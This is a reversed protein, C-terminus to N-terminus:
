FSFFSISLHISKHSIDTFTIKVGNGITRLRGVDNEEFRVSVCWFFCFEHVCIFILLFSLYYFRCWIDRLRSLTPTLRANWGLASARGLFRM